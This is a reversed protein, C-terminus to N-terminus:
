PLAARHRLASRRRRSRRSTAPSALSAGAQFLPSIRIYANLRYAKANRPERELITKATAELDRVRDQNMEEIATGDIQALDAELTAGGRAGVLPVIAVARGQAAASTAATLAVLVASARMSRLLRPTM